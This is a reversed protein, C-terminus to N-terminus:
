DKNEKGIETLESIYVIWSIVKCSNIRSAYDLSVGHLVEHRNLNGRFENKRNESATILTQKLLPQILIAQFSEQDLKRIEDGIVPQGKCSRYIRQKYSDYWIGDTQYLFIPISSVYDRKKHNLFAIKLIKARNPHREFIDRKFLDLNNTVMEVMYKDAKRYHGKQILSGVYNIECPTMHMSVFWGNNAMTKLNEPLLEMSMKFQKSILEYSPKSSQFAQYAREIAQSMQNQILKLHETINSFEPNAMKNFLNFM